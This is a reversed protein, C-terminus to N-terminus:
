NMFGLMLINSLLLVFSVVKWFLAPDREILPAKTKKLFSQNPNRLDYTFESLENYRKTPDVEVAKRITEDIWIPVDIGMASLSSYKLKKQEKATKTRAVQTGYPTKASLMEYLIVGLSFIDARPKGVKGVFYEPASYLATGQLNEQIVGTNIDQIGEVRVSGFDIIKVTGTKDIIINEPRIDQHVMEKRHFAHLGLAIQDIIDRASELTPNPNDTMWQRLTQGEIYETVNYLYNRERTQSYAKLVHANNIKRAIWEEMVFRELYAKDMSMELSPTKLVVSEGSEEDVALYVHSRSSGSLERIIKYGDFTSRVELLPPLPKESMKQVEAVNKDPLSDIRIMQLTLNDGSGNKYAKDVILKCAADFDDGCADLAELIDSKQIHESVGDTMLLYIEGVSLTFSDYDIALHSDMGMARALYRENQSLVLEHDETLQELDSGSLRYIRSDGIHFLYGTTSRLVMGSFTCVYGKDKNHAHQGQKSQSFLWSNTAVLVRKASTKVTWTEPTAFYDELFSLVSVRSAVQSVGSSSIGDALAIAIGKTTLLPEKPIYIEGFDQNITKRGKTSYKGSTISLTQM